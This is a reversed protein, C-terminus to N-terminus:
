LWDSGPKEGLVPLPMPRPPVPPPSGRKANGGPINLILDKTRTRRRELKSRARVVVRATEMLVNMGSPLATSSGPGDATRPRGISPMRERAPSASAGRRPASTVDLMPRGEPVTSLSDASGPRRTHRSRSSGRSPGNLKFVRAIISLRRSRGEGDEDDSDSEDFVSRLVEPEVANPNLLLPAPEAAGGVATLSPTHAPAPASTQEELVAPVQNRGSNSDKWGITTRPSPHEFRSGQSFSSSTSM